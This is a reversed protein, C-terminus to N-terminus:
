DGSLPTIVKIIKYFYVNLFIIYYTHMTIILILSAITNILGRRMIPKM